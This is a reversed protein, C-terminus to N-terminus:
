VHEGVNPETPFGNPPPMQAGAAIIVTADFATYGLNEARAVADDFSLGGFRVSGALEGITPLKVPQVREVEWIALLDTIQEDPIGLTVLAQKTTTANAKYGVYWSGVKRVAADLARMERRALTLEIVYQGTQGSYGIQDLLTVATGTTIIGDYLLTVINGKALAKDQEIQQTTAQHSFAAILEESLGEGTWYAKAQDLTIGGAIYLEKTEQPSPWYQALKQLLDTWKTKVDSEAIAQQFTVEDAGLGTWGTLGRLAMHAVEQPGPPRGAIDYAIKFWDPNGNVFGAPELGLEIALAEATAYPLQQQVAARVMDIPTLTQYALKTFMDIWDDKTDGERLGQQLRSIDILQRRWMAFLDQPSPPVGAADAMAQMNQRDIGSKAAEAFVDDSVATVSTSGPDIGRVALTSLIGPDLPKTPNASWLDNAVIQTFPALATSALSFMVGYIFFQQITSGFQATPRAAHELLGAVAGAPDVSGLIQDILPAIVETGHEELGELWDDKIRQTTKAAIESTWPSHHVIVEGILQGLKSATQHAQAVKDAPAM